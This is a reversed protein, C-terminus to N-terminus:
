TAHRCPDSAVGPDRHRRDELEAGLLLLLAPDHGPDLALLDARQRDGFRAGTGVNRAQLGEGATVVALVDHVAGLREDGVAHAGVEVHGRHLRCLLAAVVAEREQHELLAHRAELDRALELLEPPVRRVGALECEGVHAHGFLVQEALLVLAEVQDHGVELPLPERHREAGDAPHLRRELARQLVRQLALGEAARDAM